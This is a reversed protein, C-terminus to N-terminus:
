ILKFHELAYKIGDETVSKTVFNARQKVIDKGNDMAIGLGVYEIMEIDNLGDGFAVAREKPINLYDLLQEIGNAKSTGKLLVDNCYPHWRIFELEQIEKKYDIIEEETAYLFLQHIDEKKWYEKDEIPRKIGVIKLVEDVRDYALGNNRSEKASAYTLALNKEKSLKDIKEITDKSILRKFIVEGKYSVYSGNFNVMSDIGLEKAVHMSNYPARGTAIVVEIGKEKLKNVSEKVSNPIQQKEDYITGDIDFFVIDYNM